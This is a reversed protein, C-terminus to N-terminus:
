YIAFQLDPMKGSMIARPPSSARGVFCNPNSGRIERIVRFLGFSQDNPNPDAQPPAIYPCNM